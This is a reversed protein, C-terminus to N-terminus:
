SSSSTFRLLLTNYLFNFPSYITFIEPSKIKGRTLSEKFDFKGEFVLFRYNQSEECDIAMSQTTSVSFNAESATISITSQSENHSSQFTIRYSVTVKDFDDSTCELTENITGTDIGISATPRSNDDLATGPCYFQWTITSVRSTTCTYHVRQEPCTPTRQPGSLTTVALM